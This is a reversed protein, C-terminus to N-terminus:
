HKQIRAAKIREASWAAASNSLSVDPPDSYDIAVSYPSLEYINTFAQQLDLPVDPDPERLPVRVTPLPDSIAFPGVETEPRKNARTLFVFYDAAPLPKTMPVRKGQRLLDIEVLHASSLLIKNRKQLYEKRGGGRKNTPSLIEILTVLTRGAQDRIEVWSHPVRSPVVTTLKVPAEALAAAAVPLPTQRGEIVGVDPYVDTAEISIEEPTDTVQRQNAFALYRPLLLPTLQRAIEVALQVHFTTWLNGELYPDMGPFPCTM